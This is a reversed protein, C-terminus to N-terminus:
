AEHDPEGMRHIELELETGIRRRIELVLREVDRATAQGRNVIFNAHVTSIEADGARLGKLGAEQILRGVSEGPPNKFVSGASSQHLPQTKRRERVRNRIDALAEKRPRNVCRFSGGVVAGAVPYATRRYRFGIEEGPLLWFRGEGDVVEVSEVVDGIFETTTGSNMILAGGVTGPVGALFELGGLDAHATRRLLNGIQAGAGAYVVGGADTRSTVKVEDFGKGLTVVIGRFGRDSVLLNTGGGVVRIPIREANGRALIEQLADLDGPEVLAGARGGIRYSTRDRMPADMRVRAKVNNLWSLWAERDM